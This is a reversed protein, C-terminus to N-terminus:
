EVVSLIDLQVNTADALPMVVIANQDAGSSLTFVVEGNPRVTRFSPIFDIVKTFGGAYGSTNNTGREVAGFSSGPRVLTADTGSDLIVVVTQVMKRGDNLRGVLCDEQTYTFIAM